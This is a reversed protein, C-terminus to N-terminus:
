TDINLEAPDDNFRDLTPRFADASPRHHRKFPNPNQTKLYVNDKMIEGGRSIAGLTPADKPRTMEHALEDPMLMDTMNGYVKQLDSGRQGKHTRPRIQKPRDGSASRFGKSSM